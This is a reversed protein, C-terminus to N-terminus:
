AFIKDIVRQNHKDSLVVQKLQKDLVQDARLLKLSEAVLVAQAYTKMSRKALTLANECQTIRRARSAIRSQLRSTITM